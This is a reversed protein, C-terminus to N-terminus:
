QEILNEELFAIYGESLEDHETIVFQQLIDESTDELENNLLSIPDFAYNDQIQNNTQM